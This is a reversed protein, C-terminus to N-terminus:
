KNIKILYNNRSYNGTFDDKLGMAINEEETGLEFAKDNFYLENSNQSM